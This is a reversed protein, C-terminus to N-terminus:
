HTAGLADITAELYLVDRRFTAIQPSLASFHFRLENLIDEDSKLIAAALDIRESSLGLNCTKNFGVREFSEDYM